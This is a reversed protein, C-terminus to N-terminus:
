RFHWQLASEPEIMMYLWGAAKDSKIEWDELSKEEEPKPPSSQKPAKSVGSVIRWVGASKLWASM